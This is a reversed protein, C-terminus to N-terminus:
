SGTGADATEALDSYIDWIVIHVIINNWVESEMRQLSKTDNVTTTMTTTTMAAERKVKQALMRPKMTTTMTM